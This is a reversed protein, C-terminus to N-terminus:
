VPAVTLLTGVIDAYGIGIGPLECSSTVGTISYRIGNDLYRNGCAM